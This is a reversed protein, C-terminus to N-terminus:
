RVKGIMNLLRAVSRELDARSIHGEEYGKLIQSIVPPGGPMIVDNGAVVADAGDVVIDMDGWDTVVVGEFGWEERLIQTCLERNGGAFIGNIKNFSTMICSIDANRVLMEFPKLYLERATRETLITDVADYNRCRSGRRWTEQENMAFHKACVLVPHREQVGKAIECACIGTLMPDESLYEFNRGCLPHRHLNVAPGLWIDVQQKECETGIANGFQYWIERDFACGTLMETPWAMEGIGAPGDKYFVSKIGYKEMAPSVYGNFGVPHDNTTVPLGEEDFVTEPDRSQGIASFPTGPGYGVCLAALQQIALEKVVETQKKNSKSVVDKDWQLDEEGLVFDIKEFTEKKDEMKQSLFDIKDRNCAKVGLCNTLQEVRIDKKVTINCADKTDRSSTGVRLLYEGAEIIYAAEKEVYCAFEKWPIFLEAKTREGPQLCDTKVFSKLEQYARESKTNVASLYVQAVEKGAVDGTNNVTITLSIGDARKIVNIDYIVFSTYSLGYGFPYLAAKHFTDFYRYGNYIDEQYVTVPNKVFETSNNQEANLGYSEYTLLQESNEKDWTFHKWAPYDEYHKSITFALKGSPNVKGTLIEALAAAGEEGPIGIFLVSKIAPYNEIWSLDILGNINLILVVKSFSQCTQELICKESKTLFYDEELHRDCEEGGSNRGLVLVATDTYERATSIVAQPIEYEMVPPRYKGFVEYMIGSNVLHNIKSFDFEDIETKEEGAFKEQYFSKLAPEAFIGRKECEELIKKSNETHSSGSGNGSFITETQARGIFAVKQQEQLPLMHEENKLLVIAEQAIRKAVQRTDM